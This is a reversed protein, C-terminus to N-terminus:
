RDGFAKRGERDADIRELKVGISPRDTLAAIGEKSVGRREAEAPTVLGDKRLNVGAVMSLVDGSLGPKWTRNAFRQKLAYGAIVQGSQIKHTMLEELAERRDKIIQEAYRLTDLEHALIPNPLADSFATDSTADIANMSAARATPCGALAHCKACQPSTQLEDSPHSLRYQIRAHYRLLEDYSLRWERCPGDPHYPRPQHIRLRILAPSAGNRICWGIAYAILTWNEFPDVLRWGYKFDDITLISTPEETATHSYDGRDYVVHDARCRVEFADTGFTLDIEMQGCELASVYEAVAEIMDTTVVWGNPAKTGAPHERGEFWQKALWHAAIGEDRAEHDFDPPLAAPMLRSGICTMLRPLETATTILM